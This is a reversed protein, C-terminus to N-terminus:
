TISIGVGLRRCNNSTLQVGTVIFAVKAFQNAPEKFPTKAFNLSREISLKIFKSNLCYLSGSPCDRDYWVPANRFMLKNDNKKTGIGSGQRQEIRAYGTGELIDEYQGFTTLTMVIGDPQTNGESSNNYLLGLNKLGTYSPASSADFDGIAQFQNRWWSENARNIGGVTGTGPADAIIDQVGLMTKGTAAAFIGANITDRQTSMSQETKAVLLSEADSRKRNETEETMSITIPTAVYRRPYFAATIGDVSDPPITDYGDFWTSANTGYMLDEKIEKGGNEFQVRGSGRLWALTPYEDFINDTLRKRHARMTLTWAADWTETTQVAAM